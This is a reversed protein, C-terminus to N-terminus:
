KRWKDYTITLLQPITNQSKLYLKEVSDDYNKQLSSLHCIIQNLAGWRGIRIRQNNFVQEIRRSHIVRLLLYDVAIFATEGVTLEALADMPQGIGSGPESNFLTVGNGYHAPVAV